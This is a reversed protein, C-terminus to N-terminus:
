AGVARLLPNVVLVLTSSRWARAERSLLPPM